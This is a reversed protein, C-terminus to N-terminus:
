LSDALPRWDLLDHPVEDGRWDWHVLGSRHQALAAAAKDPSCWRGHQEGAFECSWHRAVKVLRVIGVPTAYEYAM